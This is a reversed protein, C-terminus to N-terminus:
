TCVTHEKQGLLMQTKFCQFLARTARFLLIIQSSRTGRERCGLWGSSTGGGQGMLHRALGQPCRRWVGIRGCSNSHCRCLPWSSLSWHMAQPLPECSKWSVAEALFYLPVM